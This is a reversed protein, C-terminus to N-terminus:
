MSMRAPRKTFVVQATESIEIATTGFQKRPLTFDDPLLVCFLRHALGPGSCVLLYSVELETLDRDQVPRARHQKSADATLQHLSGTVSAM